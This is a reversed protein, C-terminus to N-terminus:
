DLFAHLRRRLRLEEDAGSDLREQREIRKGAPAARVSGRGSSARANVCPGVGGPRVWGPAGGGPGCDGGGGRPLHHPGEGGGGGGSGAGRAAGGGVALSAGPWAIGGASSSAKTSPMTLSAMAWSCM